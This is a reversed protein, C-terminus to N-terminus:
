VSASQAASHYRTPQGDDHQDVPDAPHGIHCVVNDSPRVQAGANAGRHQNSRSTCAALATAGAVCWLMVSYSSMPSIGPITIGSDWIRSDQSNIGIGFGLVPLPLMGIRSNGFIKLITTNLNNFSVFFGNWSDLLYFIEHMGSDLLVGQQEGYNTNQCDRDSESNQIDIM